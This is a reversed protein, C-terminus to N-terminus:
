RAPPALYARLGERTLAAEAQVWDCFARVPETMAAPPPAILWYAYPSARRSGPRTAFPEVLAGNRLGDLVLALRGMAVGQGAACAQVQQHALTFYLWQAPQLDQLGAERLWPSWSRYETSALLDLDEILTHAAL